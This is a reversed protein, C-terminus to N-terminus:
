FQNEFFLSLFLNEGNLCFTFNFHGVSLEPLSQEGAGKSSGRESIHGVKDSSKGLVHTLFKIILRIKVIRLSSKPSGTSFSLKSSLSALLSLYFSNM